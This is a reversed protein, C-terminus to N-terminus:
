DTETTEYAVYEHEGSDDDYSSVYFSSITDEAYEDCVQLEPPLKSLEAIAERVKM